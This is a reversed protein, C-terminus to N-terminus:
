WENQSPAPSEQEIAQHLQLNIEDRELSNLLDILAQRKLEEESPASAANLHESEDGRDDAPDPYANADFSDEDQHPTDESNPADDPDETHTDDQSNGSNPDENDLKGDDAGTDGTDTDETDSDDPEPEPPSTDPFSLHYFTEAGYIRVIIKETQPALHTTAIAAHIPSAEPTEASPDHESEIPTSTALRRGTIPDWLEVHVHQPLVDEDIDIRASFPQLETSEEDSHLDMVFWDQDNPCLRLHRIEQQGSRITAAQDPRDNPEFRDNGDPCAGFRYVSMHYDLEQNDQTAFGWLAQTDHAIEGSAWSIPESTMQRNLAPIAEPDTSFGNRLVPQEVNENGEPQVDVFLHDGQQVSMQFWDKNDNCLRATHEGSEIEFARNPQDNPEYEDELSSCPPTIQVQITYSYELHDTSSLHVFYPANHTPLANLELRRRIKKAPILGNKDREDNRGSDVAITKGKADVIAMRIARSPIREPLPPGGNDDRLRKLDAQVEVSEGGQIPLRLWDDNGSCLTLTPPSKKDSPADTYRSAHPGIISTAPLDTAQAQHNNPELSDELDRCLPYLKRHAIELNKRATINHPDLILARTYRTIADRYNEQQVLTNGIGILAAVRLATNSAGLAALFDQQAHEINGNEDHIRGRNFHFAHQTRADKNAREIYELAAAYDGKEAKEIARRVHADEYRFDLCSAQFLVAIVGFLLPWRSRHSGTSPRDDLLMALFLLFFAPWLFFAGRNVYHSRLASSLYAEDFQDIIATLTHTTSKLGDYHMYMGGGAAAIERLQGDELQTHVVKGSRDTLYSQFNGYRDHLPIRGGANTGIGITYVQINDEHAVQAAEVPHTQHDEGDSIVLIMQNPARRFDSNNGGTLLRHAEHIALGLSTGQAPIADPNVRDLYLRIAGYDSTLPSQTFAVGAFVVLGVRDGDLQSLLQDLERTAAKIRNPGVDEALMSRSADLVIAIDTGKRQVRRTEEGWQPQASALILFFCGVATLAFRASNRRPSWSTSLRAFARSHMLAAQTRRQRHARHAWIFALAVLAVLWWLARPRAFHVFPYLFLTAACSLIAVVIPTLFVLRPRRM